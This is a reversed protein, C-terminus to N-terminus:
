VRRASSSDAMTPMSRSSFRACAGGSPRIRFAVRSGGREGTRIPCIFWIVGPLSINSTVRAGKTGLPEKVVQVLLTDGRALERCKRPAAGEEEPATPRTPQGGKKGPLIYNGVVDSFHLFANREMGINVFVAQLGAVVGEVRGKYLNGVISKEEIQEVFLQVLQDDELIAVRIDKDEVNILVRKKV